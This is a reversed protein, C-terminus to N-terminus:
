HQSKCEQKFHVPIFQVWQQQPTICYGHPPSRHHHQFHSVCHTDPLKLIVFHNQLQFLTQTQRQLCMTTFYWHVHDSNIEYHAAHSLSWNLAVTTPVSQHKPLTCTQTFQLATESYLHHVYYLMANTNYNNYM